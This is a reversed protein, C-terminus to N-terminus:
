AVHSLIIRFLAGPVWIRTIVTNDTYGVSSFPKAAGMYAAALLLAHPFSICPRLHIWNCM